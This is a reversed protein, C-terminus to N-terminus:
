RSGKSILEITGLGVGFIVTAVFFPLTLDVIICSGSQGLSLNDLNCEMELRQDDIIEKLPPSLVVGTVIAFIALMILMLASVNIGKKNM